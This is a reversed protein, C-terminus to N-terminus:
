ILLLLWRLRVGGFPSLTFDTDSLLLPSATFIYPM